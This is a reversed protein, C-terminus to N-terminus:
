KRPVGALEARVQTVTEWFLEEVKEKAPGWWKSRRCGPWNVACWRPRPCLMGPGGSRASPSTTSGNARTPTGCREADSPSRCGRGGSRGGTRVTTSLPRPVSRGNRWRFLSLLPLVTTTRPSDTRWNADLYVREIHYSEGSGVTVVYVTAMARGGDGDGSTPELRVAGRHIRGVFRPGSGAGSMAAQRGAMRPLWTLPIM